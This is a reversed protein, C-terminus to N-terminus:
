QEIEEEPQANMLSALGADLLENVHDLLEHVYKIDTGKCEAAVEIDSLGYNGNNMSETSLNILWSTWTNNDKRAYGRWLYWDDSHESEPKVCLCSYQGLLGSDELNKKMCRAAAYRKERDSCTEFDHREM